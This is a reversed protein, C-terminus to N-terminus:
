QKQKGKQVKLHNEKFKFGDMNFVAEEYDEKENYSVYM